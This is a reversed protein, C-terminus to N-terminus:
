SEDGTEDGTLEHVPRALANKEIDQQPNHTSYDSAPEEGPETSRGYRADVEIAYEDRNDPGNDKQDDVVGNPAGGSM